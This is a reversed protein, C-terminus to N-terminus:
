IELNVILEFEDYIMNDGLGDFFNGSGYKVDFKTRDIKINANLNNKDIQAEFNITKTIGKITLKATVSHSKSKIKNVKIISLSATEFKNVGFFDDSKLHGELKSKYEGTLDTCTLSTMDIVFSGAVLQNSDYILEGSQLSIMGQHSGVVKEGVWQISSSTVNITEKKIPNFSQLSLGMLVVALSLTLKKILKSPNAHSGDCNGNIDKTKGCKCKAMRENKM